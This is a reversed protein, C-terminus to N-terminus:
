FAVDDEIRQEVKTRMDQLDLTCLTHEHTGPEMGWKACYSRNEEAIDLARQHAAASQAASMRPINLILYLALATLLSSLAVHVMGVIQQTRTPAARRINM